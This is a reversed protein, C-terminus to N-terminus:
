LASPVRSASCFGCGVSTVAITAASPAASASAPPRSEISHNLRTRQREFTTADSCNVPASLAPAAPHGVVATAKGSKVIVRGANLLPYEGDAAQKVKVLYVVGKEILVIRGDDLGM